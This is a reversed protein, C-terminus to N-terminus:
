QWYAQVVGKYLLPGNEHLYLAPWVVFSVSDGSKVFEKYTSKDFVTGPQLDKDLQMMPDQIAMSWCLNICKEFFATKLLSSILKENKHEYEWDQVVMEKGIVQKELFFKITNEINHRRKNIVERSGPFSSYKEDSEFDLYLTVAINQGINCLQETSVRVCHTYCCVLLRHLHRIVIEEIESKTKDPHYEQVTDTYKMADTWENDYLEGYMEGIKMPRNPDGLDTIAPNGKTLKEGAVSSLRTQLDDKEQRLIRIIDEKEKISIKLSKEKTETKRQHLEIQRSYSDCRQQLDQNQRKLSDVEDKHNTVKQYSEMKLYDLNKALVSNDEKLQAMKQGTSEIECKYLKIHEEKRNLQTQFQDEQEKARKNMDDTWKAYRLSLEQQEKELQLCSKRTEFLVKLIEQGKEIYFSKEDNVGKRTSIAREYDEFSNTDANSSFKHIINILYHLQKLQDKEQIETKRSTPEQHCKTERQSEQININSLQLSLKDVEEEYSKNEERVVENENEQNIDAILKGFLNSVDFSNGVGPRFQLKQLLCPGPEMIEFEKKAHKIKLWSKLFTWVNSSELNRFCTNATTLLTEREQCNDQLQDIKGDVISVLSQKTRLIHYTLKNGENEIQQKILNLANIKSSCMEDYSNFQGCLVDLDDKITLLDRKINNQFVKVPLTIHKSHNECEICTIESCESCYGSIIIDHLACKCSDSVSGLVSCSKNQHDPLCDCCLKRGCYECLDVIRYLECVVCDDINSM